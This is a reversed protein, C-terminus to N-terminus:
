RESLVVSDPPLRRYGGGSTHSSTIVAWGAGNQDDILVVGSEPHLEIADRETGALAACWYSPPMQTGVRVRVRRVTVPSGQWYTKEM